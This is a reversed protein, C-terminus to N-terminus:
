TPANEELIVALEAQNSLTPLALTHVANMDLLGNAQRPYYTIVIVRTMHGVEGASIMQQFSVQRKTQLWRHLTVGSVDVLVRSSAMWLAWAGGLLGVAAFFVSDWAPDSRLNWGILGALIFGVAALVVYRPSPHFTHSDFM